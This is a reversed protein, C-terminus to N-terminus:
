GGLIEPWVRKLEEPTDAAEIAPDKTVDRLAQKRQAIQKKLEAEGKEDARQYQVDLDQLLPCRCERMHDKHIERAKPMDIVIGGNEDKWANRFDREPLESDDAFRFEAGAPVSKAIIFEWAQGIFEAISFDPHSARDADYLRASQELQEEMSQLQSRLTEIRRLAGEKVEADSGPHSALKIISNMEEATSKIEINLSHRKGREIAIIKQVAPFIIGKEEMGRITRSNPDFMEPAPKVVSCGGNLRKFIIVKM